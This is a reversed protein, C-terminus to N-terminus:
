KLQSNSVFAVHENDPSWSNVNITGQGGYLYAVVSAPGGAVPQSRLYVSKYFPHDAAAVDEMFSLFVLSKGDPSVHPFWNNYRDDTLMTQGSGDSDMKWIQMTGTRTSNFFITKGDPSYESGDDVGKDTTLRVEEGGKSPLLYIDLNENRQGTFALFRGDPSWGHLYSPGDRSLLTPTGGGVPVVYIMSKGGHDASHHSIGLQKGDFSLAHDNNNRTAFDTNIETILNSEIEFRYLRGNRNFILAKGDPTWNPAQMSDPVSHVVKRHGTKVNLIELRSGIYDRYPKFDSPAPITIRVNSFVGKEIVDANHSCIYLGVYVDDGLDLEIGEVSQLPEGAHAVAMSIKTGKRSLQVVDPSKVQSQVQETIGGQVRRFQLSTLGDGHVAIDAYASDTDLNKRIMWGLKRHPDVGEGVLRVKADLIFDGKLRKWAMHFEDKAAWMNTGAGSLEYSQNTADFSTSGPKRVSGVDSQTVFEGISESKTDARGLLSALSAFLLTLFIISHNAFACKM